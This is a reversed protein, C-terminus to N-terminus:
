WRLDIVVLRADIAHCRASLVGRQEDPQWVSVHRGIRLAARTASAGLHWRIEATAPVHVDSFGCTTASGDDIRFRGDETIFTIVGQFDPPGELDTEPATATRCAVLLSAFLAVFRLM